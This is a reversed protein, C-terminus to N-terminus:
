RFLAANPTSTLVMMVPIVSVVRVFVGRKCLVPLSSNATQIILGSVWVALFGSGRAHLCFGAKRGRLPVKEDLGGIESVTQSIESIIPNWRYRSYRSYGKYPCFIIILIPLGGNRSHLM